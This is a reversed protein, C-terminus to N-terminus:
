DLVRIMNNYNTDVIFTYVVVNNEDDVFNKFMKIGANACLSRLLIEDVDGNLAKIMEKTTDNKSFNLYDGNELNYQFKYVIKEDYLSVNRRLGEKIRFFLKFTNPSDLHQKEQQIKEKINVLEKIFEQNM